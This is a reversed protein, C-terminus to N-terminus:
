LAQSMDMTVINVFARPEEWFVHFGKRKPIIENETTSMKGCREGLCLAKKRLDIENLLYTDVRWLLMFIMKQRQNQCIKEINSLSDM